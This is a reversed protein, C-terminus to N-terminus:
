SVKASSFLVGGPMRIDILVIRPRKRDASAIKQEHLAHIQRNRRRGRGKHGQGRGEKVGLKWM